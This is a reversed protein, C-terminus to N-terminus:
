DPMRKAIVEAAALGSCYAQEIYGAFFIQAQRNLRAIRCAHAASFDPIRAATKARAAGERKVRAEVLASRPTVNSGFRGRGRAQVVKTAPATPLVTVKASM